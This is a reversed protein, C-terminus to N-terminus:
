ARRTSPPANAKKWDEPVDGSRWSKEFIISLPRAVIDALERLVRPHINDPGMSKYPDAGQLLECVSVEKVSPPDTNADAQIKTGLALPGVTHLIGRPSLGESRSGSCEIPSGCDSYNIEICELNERVYLTAGGGGGRRGQRDKRFLGYGDMVIRWEHSNDWWTATAGIIDYSESQACLELEEQKNGLSRANIYICKLHSTKRNEGKTKELVPNQLPKLKEM